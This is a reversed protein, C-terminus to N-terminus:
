KVFHGSTYGMRILFGGGYRLSYHLVPYRSIPVEEVENRDPFFNRRQPISPPRHVVRLQCSWSWVKAGVTLHCTSLNLRVM